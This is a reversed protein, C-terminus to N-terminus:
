GRPEFAYLRAPVGTTREALLTLRLATAAVPEFGVLNLRAFNGKCEAVKQWGQATKADLRFDMGLCDPLCRPSDEGEDCRMQKADAFDSDWVIRAGSLATAKPFRWECTDGALLEVAHDCDAGETGAPMEREIGDALRRDSPVGSQVVSSSRRPIGPIYQDQDMLLQQLEDIHKSGVACPPCEKRIAIAAATGAAQGLMACTAMVRTSSLALHTVSINRGAFLLNDVNRSYLCRYPIHYGPRLPRTRNPEGCHYIAAPDHDDVLWAGYAVADPFHRCAETDCQTLVYDGLYRRSERKGPLSGIWDLSWGNGRGDPHNKIYEWYGLALRTLERTIEHSDHITDQEGGFELWWFNDGPQALDQRPITEDTYHYAWRPARFPRCDGTKRLQLIISNGMTKLDAESQGWPEGYEAAAERGVTYDAGSKALISDGSCDIFLDAQFRYDTYDTLGWAHVECIRRHGNPLRESVVDHVSTSFFCRLNPENELFDRMVQDWLTYKLTPNYHYNALKLEELLGGERFAAERAGCIWMRIESSANGGPMPRDQILATRAGNRAASVAACIGAMGGGVVVVQASILVTKLPEAINEIEEKPSM